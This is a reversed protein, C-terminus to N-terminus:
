KWWEQYPPIDIDEDFTTFVHFEAFKDEMANHLYVKYLEENGDTLSTIRIKAPNDNKDLEAQMQRKVEPSRDITM